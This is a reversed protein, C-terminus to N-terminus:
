FNEEDDERRHPDMDDLEDEVCSGCLYDGSYYSYFTAGCSDCVCEYM